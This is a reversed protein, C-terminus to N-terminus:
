VNSVEAALNPFKSEIAAIVASIDAQPMAGRMNTSATTSKYGSIKEVIEGLTTKGPPNDKETIRGVATLFIGMQRNTFCPNGTQANFAKEPEKAIADEYKKKWEDREKKLKYIENEVDTDIIGGGMKVHLHSEPEDFSLPKFDERSMLERSNTIVEQPIYKMANKFLRLGESHFDYNKKIWREINGVFMDGERCYRKDCIKLYNIVMALTIAVFLKCASENEHELNAGIGKATKISWAISMMPNQQALIVTAIYHATNFIDVIYTEADDLEMIESNYICAIMWKEVSKHNNIDFDDLSCRNCYIKERPLKTYDINRAETTQM